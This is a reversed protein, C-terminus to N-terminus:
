FSWNESLIRNFEIQQNQGEILHDIKKELISREVHDNITMEEGNRWQKM